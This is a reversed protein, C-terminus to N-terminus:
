KVSCNVLLNVLKSQESDYNQKALTMQEKFNNVAKQTESELQNLAGEVTRYAVSLNSDAKVMEEISAQNKTFLSRVATYEEVTKKHKSKLEDIKYMQYIKEHLDDEFTYSDALINQYVIKAQETNYEQGKLLNVCPNVEEKVEVEVAPADPIPVPIKQEQELKIEVKKKIVPKIPREVLIGKTSTTIKETTTAQLMEVQKTLKEIQKQQDEVISVTPSQCGAGTLVLIGLCLVLRRM